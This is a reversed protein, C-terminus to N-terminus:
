RNRQLRSQMGQSERVLFPDHSVPENEIVKDTLSSYAAEDM